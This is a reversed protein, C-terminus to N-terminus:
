QWREVDVLAQALEDLFLPATEAELEIERERPQQALQAVGHSEPAGIDEARWARRRVLSMQDNKHVAESRVRQEDIGAEAVRDARYKGDPAFPAIRREAFLVVERRRRAETEFLKTKGVAERM